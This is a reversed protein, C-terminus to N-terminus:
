TRALNVPNLKPELGGAGPELPGDGMSQRLSLILRVEEGPCEGFGEKEAGPDIFRKDVGKDRGGLRSTV